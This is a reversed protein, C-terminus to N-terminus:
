PVRLKTYMVQTQYPRHLSLLYYIGLACNTALSAIEGAALPAQARHTWIDAYFGQTIEDWLVHQVDGDATKFFVHQQYHSNNDSPPM